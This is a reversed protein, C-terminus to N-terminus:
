SSQVVVLNRGSAKAKYLMKDATAIINDSEDETQVVKSYGGISVTMSIVQGEFVIKKAEVNHRVKELLNQLGTDDTNPLILVFEEGGYRCIIDSPRLITDQLVAAFEKLCHDGCLHGYSDNIKKFFDIDLMALGLTTLERKSRRCEAIIQKDFYRRNMLGTLPDIASLKELDRNKEALERLAIELELTREEISYELDTKSREQLRILEEKVELAEQENKLATDRIIKAKLLQGNFKIALALALLIAETIAGLMLLYTSNIPAKYLHFNEMAISMGSLLLVAWAACFYRAVLSGKVALVLGVSFIIGSSIILLGLVSKIAVEPPLGLICLFLIAIFIININRLTRYSTGHEKKLELLSTSLSIIFIMTLSTFITVCYAQLWVLNPWLYHFGIGQLAAISVAISSVYGTYILFIKNHTTAYIYLNCLAMAIMYGFFLGFFLKELGSYELYNTVTWIEVPVNIAGKSHVSIYAYLPLDSQPVEFIFKESNVERSFYKFADGSGHAAIIQSGRTTKNVFWVNVYDLLGYNLLLLRTELTDTEPVKIKLWHVSPNLGLNDNKMTLWSVSSRLLTDNITSNFNDDVFYSIQLDQSNQKVIQTLNFPLILLFLVFIVVGAVIGATRTKTM